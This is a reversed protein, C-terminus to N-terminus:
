TPQKVASGHCLLKNLLKQLPALNNTYYAWLLELALGITLYLLLSGATSEAAEVAKTALLRGDTCACILDCVM